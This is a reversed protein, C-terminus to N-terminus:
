ASGIKMEQAPVPTHGGTSTRSYAHLSRQPGEKRFAGLYAPDSRWLCIPRTHLGDLVAGFGSREAQQQKDVVHVDLLSTPYQKLGLLCRYHATISLDLRKLLYEIEDRRQEVVVIVDIDSCSNSTENVSSGYVYVEHFGCGLHALYLSLGKAIGYRFTSHMVCDGDELRRLIVDAALGHRHCCIAIAQEFLTENAVEAAVFGSQTRYSM